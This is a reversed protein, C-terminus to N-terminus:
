YMPIVPHIKAKEVIDTMIGRMENARDQAKHKDEDTVEIDEPFTLGQSIAEREEHFDRIPADSLINQFIGCREIQRKWEM